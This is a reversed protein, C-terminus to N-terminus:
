ASPLQRSSSMLCAKSMEFLDFQEYAQQTLGALKRAMSPEFGEPYTDLRSVIVRDKSQNPDPLSPM